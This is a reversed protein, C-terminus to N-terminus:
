SYRQSDHPYSISLNCFILSAGNNSHGEQLSLASLFSMDAAPNRSLPLPQYSVSKLLPLFFFTIPSSDELDLEEFPAEFLLFASLLAFPDPDSM